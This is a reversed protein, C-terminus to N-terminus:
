QVINCSDGADHCVSVPGGGPNYECEHTGTNCTGDVGGAGKGVCDNGTTCRCSKIICSEATTCDADSTCAAGYKGNEARCYKAPKLTLRSGTACTNLSELVAAFCDMYLSGGASNKHVEDTFTDFRAKWGLNMECKHLDAVLPFNTTDYIISKGVSDFYENENFGDINRPHAPVAYVIFPAQAGLTEAASKLSLFSKYLLKGRVAGANIKEAWGTGSAHYEWGCEQCRAGDCRGQVKIEPSWFNYTDTVSRAVRREKCETSCTEASCPCSCQGSCVCAGGYGSGCTAGTDVRLCAAGTGCNTGKNNFTCARRCWGKTDGGQIICSPATSPCDKDNSCGCLAGDPYTNPHLNYNDECTGLGICACAANAGDCQTYFDAIDLSVCRAASGCTAVATASTCTVGQRLQVDCNTTNVCTNAKVTCNFTSSDNTCVSDTKSGQPSFAKGMCRSDPGYLATCTSNGICATTTSNPCRDTATTECMNFRDGLVARAIRPADCQPDPVDYDNAGMYVTMADPKNAPICPFKSSYSTDFVSGSDTGCISSDTCASGGVCRNATCASAGGPCDGVSQCGCLGTGKIFICSNHRGNVLGPARRKAMQHSSEGGRACSLVTDVNLHDLTFAGWGVNGTPCKNDQTPNSPDDPCAEECTASIASPCAGLNECQANATCAINANNNCFGNDPDTLNCTQPPTGGTDCFYDVDDCEVGKDGTQENRTSTCTRCDANSGCGGANDCFESWSCCQQQSCQRKTVEGPALFLCQKAFTGDLISDGIHLIVRKGDGNVDPINLPILGLDPYEAYAYAMLAAFRIEQSQGPDKCNRYRLLLSNVDAVSWGLNTSGPRNEFLSYGLFCWPNNDCGSAVDWGATPEHWITSTFSTGYGIQATGTYAGGNTTRGYTLAAVARITSARGEMTINQMSFRDEDGTTCDTSAGRDRCKNTNAAAPSVLTGGNAWDTICNLNIGTCDGGSVCLKGKGSVTDNADPFLPAVWGPRARTEDTIVWDDVYWKGNAIAPTDIVGLKVRTANPMQPTVADNKAILKGGIYMRCSTNTFGLEIPAWYCDAGNGTTCATCTQASPSQSCDTGSACRIHEDISCTGSATYNLVPTIVTTSTRLRVDGNNCIQINCLNEGGAGEMRAVERCDSGGSGPRTAIYMHFGTSLVSHNLAPQLQPELYSQLGSLGLIKYSWKSASHGGNTGDHRITSQVVAATDYGIDVVDVSDRQDTGAQFDAAEFGSIYLVAGFSPLPLLLVTLLVLLRTIM